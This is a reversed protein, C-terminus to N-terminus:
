SPDRNSPPPQISSVTAASSGTARRAIAYLLAGAVTLGALTQWAAANAQMAAWGCLLIGALGSIIAFTTVRPKTPARPLAAITVAYIIMRALTSVVALWVFSGSIALLATFAALFLISNSPTAFRPHVGAFWRPLDGRVALAHTVRPTSVMIGHLNGGASCIAAATLVLAGVPGALRTGLDILPAAKDAGGEPFMAVFAMQVLFYLTATIAITTLM